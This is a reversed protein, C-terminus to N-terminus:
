ERVPKGAQYLILLRPLSDMLNKDQAATALELARRAAQTAKEFQGTEAYAASLTDLIAANNGKTLQYAREALRVAERGNRYREHVTTSMIWALNNLADLSNPDKQLLQQAQVIIQELQQATARQPSGGASVENTDFKIGYEAYKKLLGEKDVAKLYAERPEVVGRTVLDM